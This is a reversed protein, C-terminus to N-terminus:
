RVNSTSKELYEIARRMIEPDDRFLGLARNCHSQCLLGRIAGTEHDHDVAFVGGKPERHCIACVGNQAELLRDFDELSLGYKKRLAYARSGRKRREPYQQRWAATLSRQREAYEPNDRRYQRKHCTNCLGQTFVPREDCEACM